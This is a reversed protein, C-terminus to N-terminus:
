QTVYKVGTLDAGSLFASSLNAQALGAGSLNAQFLVAFNLNAEALGAGSLNANGLFAGRLNAGILNAGPISVDALDVEGPGEARRGIVKLAAQVETAPKEPLTKEKTKERVFACLAELVPQHYQPSTKDNMVGELAYIGGLRMEIKEGSLQEF